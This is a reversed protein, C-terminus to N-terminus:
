VSCWLMGRFVLKSTKDFCGPIKAREGAAQKPISGFYTTKIAAFSIYFFQATLNFQIFEIIIAEFHEEQNLSEFLNYPKAELNRKLMSGHAMM